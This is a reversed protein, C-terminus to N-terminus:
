LRDRSLVREAVTEPRGDAVWAGIKERDAECALEKEALLRAEMDGLEEDLEEGVPTNAAVEVEMLVVVATMEAEAIGDMECDRDDEGDVVAVKGEVAEITAVTDRVVEMVEEPAIVTDLEAAEEAAWVSLLRAVKEGKIAERESPLLADRSDDIDGERDRSAVLLVDIDECAEEEGMKKDVREESGVSRLVPLTASDTVRRQLAELRAVTSELGEMDTVADAEDM